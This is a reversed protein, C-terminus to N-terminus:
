KLREPNARAFAEWNKYTGGSSTAGRHIHCMAVALADSTDMTISSGSPMNLMTEIMFRVQEKSANGNGTVAKKIEKPTYETVPIQHNLAALMASAQARGLKLMSQPNNGYIPMEIACLDPKHEDLLECVGEYIQKLKLPHDKTDRIRIVGCDIMKEGGGDAGGRGDAGAGSRVVGFGTINSGPDIGLIIM